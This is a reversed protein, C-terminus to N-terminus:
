GQSGAPFVVAFLQNTIERRVRQSAVYETASDAPGGKVALIGRVLNLASMLPVLEEESMDRELVVTLSSYKSM